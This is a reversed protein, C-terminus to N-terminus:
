KLALAQLQKRDTISCEVIIELINNMNSMYPGRHCGVSVSSCQFVYNSRCGCASRQAQCFQLTHSMDFHESYSLVWEILGQAYRTQKSLYINNIYSLGPNHCQIELLYNIENKDTMVLM